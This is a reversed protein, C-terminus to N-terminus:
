VRERCSARGIQRVQQWAEVAPGVLGSSLYLSGLLFRATDDAPDAKLATKLVAYSSRRSPFVYTTPLARAAKFDRAADGGIKEHVYGRYYAVLPSENPGVAGPERLAAVPPYQRDLLALADDYAGIALYQDVLDLVRNADVALHRWLEDDPENLRTLEYRAFSSTPDITRVKRAQARAEDLHGARRLLAAAVAGPVTARPSGSDARKLQEIALEADGQRALLRALELSSAVSTTRFRRSSELLRRAEATRGTDELALGLYYQVEFDTTNAALARELWRVSDLSTPTGADPWGLSTALRGAAKLLAVSEPHHHVAEQYRTM